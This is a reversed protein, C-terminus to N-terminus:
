RSSIPSVLSASFCIRISPGDAYTRSEVHFTRVISRILKAERYFETERWPGDNGRIIEIPFIRLRRGHLLSARRRRLFYDFPFRSRTPESLSGSSKCNIRVGGNVFTASFVTIAKFESENISSSPGNAFSFVGLSYADDDRHAGTTKEGRRIEKM